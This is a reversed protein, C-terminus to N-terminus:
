GERPLRATIQCWDEQTRVAAVELGAAEIATQYLRETQVPNVQYFSAASLRFRIGCLTDEIYGKGYLVKEAGGLVASSHRPNINQVVCSVSPCLQRLKTM